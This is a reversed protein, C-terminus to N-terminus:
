KHSGLFMLGGSIGMMIFGVTLQFAWGPIRELFRRVFVLIALIAGIGIVEGIWASFFAHGAEAGMATIVTTMELGEGVIGTYSALLGRTFGKENSEKHDRKRRKLFGKIAFYLGLVFVIGGAVYEMLDHPLHTFFLYLVATLPVMTALGAFTTLWAKSWGRETAAAATILGIETGALLSPLIAAVTIKWNM